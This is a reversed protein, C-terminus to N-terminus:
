NIESSDIRKIGRKKWEARAAELSGNVDIGRCADEIVYVKFGEDAADLATWSVCFDTALGCVFVENIGQSKLWVALDTKTKRDAELFASYSDINPHAGKKVFCVGNDTNLGEAFEAGATDQVCHEPWLVQKGYSVDIMSYLAEGVFCRRATTDLTAFLQDAAYVGGRTLRNFLTSKGANTYGVLAVTLVEGRQRSKRQTNRQRELKKLQERLAKVRTAIMRRDLEIQKEGPGGTKSLGGRQRELHTWGRVLRTSLHTLRALEVQLRGERTKARQRFIELILNTRDM